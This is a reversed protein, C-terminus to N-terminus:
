ASTRVRITSPTWVERTHHTHRTSPEHALTKRTRADSPRLSVAMPSLLPVAAHANINAIIAGAVPNPLAYLPDGTRATGVAPGVMCPAPGSTTAWAGEGMGRIRDLSQASAPSMSWAVRPDAVNLLSIVLM